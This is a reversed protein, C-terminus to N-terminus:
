EYGAYQNDMNALIYGNDEESCCIECLKDQRKWCIICLETGCKRCTKPKNIECWCDTCYTKAM